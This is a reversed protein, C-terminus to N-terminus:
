GFQIYLALLIAALALLESILMVACGRRDRNWSRPADPHNPGMM